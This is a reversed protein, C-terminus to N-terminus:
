DIQCKFIGIEFSPSHFIVELLLFFVTLPYTQLDRV